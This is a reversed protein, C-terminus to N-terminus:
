ERVALVIEFDDDVAKLEILSVFTLYFLEKSVTEAMQLVIFHSTEKVNNYIMLNIDNFLRGIFSTELSFGGVPGFVGVKM